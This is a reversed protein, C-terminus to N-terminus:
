ESWWVEAPTGNEDSLIVANEPTNHITGIVPNTILDVDDLCNELYATVDGGWETGYDAESKETYQYEGETETPIVHAFYITKGMAKLGKKWPLIGPLQISITGYIVTPLLFFM